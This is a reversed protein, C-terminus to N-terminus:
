PKHVNDGPLTIIQHVPSGARPSPNSKVKKRITIDMTLVGGSLHSVKKIFDRDAFNKIAKKKKKGFQSERPDQPFAPAHFRLPEHQFWVNDLLGSPTTILLKNSGTTAATQLAPCCYHLLNDLQLLLEQLLLCIGFWLPNCSHNDHISVVISSSKLQGWHHCVKCIEQFWGVVGRQHLCLKSLAQSKALFLIEM